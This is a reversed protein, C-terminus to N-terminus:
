YVKVIAWDEGSIWFWGSPKADSNYLRFDQIHDSKFKFM